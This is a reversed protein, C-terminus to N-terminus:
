EAEVNISDALKTLKKDTAGGALRRGWRSDGRGSM